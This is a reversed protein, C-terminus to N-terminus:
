DGLTNQLLRSCSLYVALKLTTNALLAQSAYVLKFYNNPDVSQYWKITNPDVLLGHLVGCLFVCLLFSLYVSLDVFSFDM